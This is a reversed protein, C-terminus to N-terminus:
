GSRTAACSRPRAGARLDDRRPRDRLARLRGPLEGLEADPRNRAFTNYASRSATRQRHLARRDGAPPRAPLLRHRLPAPRLRADRAQADDGFPIPKRVHPPAVATAVALAAGAHRAHRARELRGGPLEVVFATDLRPLTRNQWSTAPAPCRTSAATACARAARTSAELARDGGTGQDGPEDAPPVLRDGAPPHARILDRVVRSEPESCRGPAPTTPTSRAPRRRALRRPLQPQPRGRAREPTQRGRRRRPQARRDAVARGARRVRAACAAPSRCGPGSTATSRAWWWCRRPARPNGVRVARSRGARSRGLTRGATRAARSAAAPRGPLALSPPMRAALRM